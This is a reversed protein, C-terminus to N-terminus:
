ALDKTLVRLYDGFGFGRYLRAAGENAELVGIALRRLGAARALREAEELLRRGVGRGRWAEHVVLDTVHGYRRVDERVFPQDEEITFGLLGVVERDAVALVLRGQSAAVRQALHDYSAAAAARGELRDGTLANEFVNLAQILDIVAERDAPLATRLAIGSV